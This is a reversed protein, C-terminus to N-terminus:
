KSITWGKATAVAIDSESLLAYTNSNILDINKYGNYLYALFFRRVIM